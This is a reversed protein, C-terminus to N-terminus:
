GPNSTGPRGRYGAAAAVTDATPQVVRGHLGDGLSLRFVGVPARMVVAGGLAGCLGGVDPQEWVGWGKTGLPCPSAVSSESCTVPSPLM